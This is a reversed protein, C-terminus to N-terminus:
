LTLLSTDATYTLRCLIATRWCSTCAILLAVKRLIVDQEQDLRDGHYRIVAHMLNVYSDKQKPISLPMFALIMILKYQNERTDRLWKYHGALLCAVYVVVLWLPYLSFIYLDRDCVVWWVTGLFFVGFWKVVICFNTVEVYPGLFNEKFENILADLKEGRIDENIAGGAKTSM